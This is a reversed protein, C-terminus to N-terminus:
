EASGRRTEADLVTLPQRTAAHYLERLSALLASAEDYSKFALLTDAGGSRWCLVLLVPYTPVKKERLSSPQEVAGLEALEASWDAARLTFGDRRVAHVRTDSLVVLRSLPNGKRTPLQKARAHMQYVEPAPLCDRELLRQWYTRTLERATIQWLRAEKEGGIAFWITARLSAHDAGDASSSANPPPPPPPLQEAHAVTSRPVACCLVSAGAVDRRVDVSEVLELAVRTVEEGVSTRWKQYGQRSRPPGTHRSSFLQSIRGLSGGTPPMVSYLARETLALLGNGGLVTTLVEGEGPEVLGHLPSPPTAFWDCEPLDSEDDAGSAYRPGLVPLDGDATRDSLDTFPPM